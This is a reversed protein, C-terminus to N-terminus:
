CTTHFLGAVLSSERLENYLRAAEKTRVVHATVGREELLRVTETCVRLRGYVGRSLVVVTAGHELLEQVDGPRIGPDHNTGTERWDWARAGGPFLKVDKFRGAGEVEIRGWSLRVIRPSSPAETM